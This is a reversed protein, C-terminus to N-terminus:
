EKTGESGGLLSLKPRAGQPAPVHTKSPGQSVGVWMYPRAKEWTGWCIWFRGGETEAVQTAELPKWPNMIGMLSASVVLAQGAVALDSTETCPFCAQPRGSM